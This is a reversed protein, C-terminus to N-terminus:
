FGSGSGQGEDAWAVSRFSATDVLHLDSAGEDVVLQLLESMEVNPM